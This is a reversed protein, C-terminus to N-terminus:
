IDTEVINGSAATEGGCTILTGVVRLTVCFIIPSEIGEKGRFKVNGM